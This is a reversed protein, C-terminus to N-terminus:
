ATKRVRKPKALPAVDRPAHPDFVRVKARTAVPLTNTEFAEALKCLAFADAANDDKAEYGWKRFVERLMLSKEGNGKGTVYKKLTSPPVEIIKAGISYLWLRFAGGLEVRDLAKGTQSAFAYGEIAITFASSPAGFVDSKTAELCERIPGKAEGLLRELRYFRDECPKSSFLYDERHAVKTAIHLSLAFGTLSPDAGAYFTNM